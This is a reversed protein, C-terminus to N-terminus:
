KKILGTKFITGVNPRREAAPRNLSDRYALPNNADNPAPVIVYLVAEPFAYEAREILKADLTHRMILEAYPEDGFYRRITSVTSGPYIDIGIVRPDRTGGHELLRLLPELPTACRDFESTGQKLESIVAKRERVIRLNCGLWVGFITVVVFLTRLSFRFWRPKAM